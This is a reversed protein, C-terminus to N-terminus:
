GDIYITSVRSAYLENKHCRTGGNCKAMGTGQEFQNQHRSYEPFSYGPDKKEPIGRAVSQPYAPYYILVYTRTCAFFFPNACVYLSCQSNEVHIIREHRACLRYVFIVPCHLCSKEFFFFFSLAFMFLSDAFVRRLGYRLLSVTKLVTFM